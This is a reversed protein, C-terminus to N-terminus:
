RNDDKGKRVLIYDPRRQNPQPMVAIIRWGADLESQIQDTCCDNQYQICDYQLLDYGPMVVQNVTKVFEKIEQGSIGNLDPTNESIFNLKKVPKISIGKIDGIWVPLDDVEVLVPDCTPYNDETDLASWIDKLKPRDEKEGAFVCYELRVISM